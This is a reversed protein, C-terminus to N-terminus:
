ATDEESVDVNPDSTQIPTSSQIPEQIPQSVQEQVQNEGTNQTGTNQSVDTEQPKSAIRHGIFGAIGGVAMSAVNSEKMVLAVLVIITLGIIAVLNVTALEIKIEAM